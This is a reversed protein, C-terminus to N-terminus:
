SSPKGLTGRQKRKRVNANGKQVTRRMDEETEYKYQKRCKENNRLHVVLGQDGSAQCKTCMSPGSYKGVRRNARNEKYTLTQLVAKYQPGYRGEYKERCTDSQRLHYITKMTTRCFYCNGGFRSKELVKPLIYVKKTMKECKTAPACHVCRKKYICMPTTSVLAMACQKLGGRIMAQKVQNVWDKGHTEEAYIPKTTTFFHLVHALEHLLIGLRWCVHESQVVSEKLEVKAKKQKNKGYARQFRTLGDDQLEKVIQFKLDGVAELHLLLTSNKEKLINSRLKALDSELNLNTTTKVM